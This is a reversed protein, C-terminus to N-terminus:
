FAAVAAAADPYVEFYADFGVKKLIQSVTQGPGALKLSSGAGPQDVMSHLASWGDEPNLPPEGRLMKAISHIALLGASSIFAVGSLDLVMATAGEDRLKKGAEILDRYNSGDVNGEPAIVAVPVRGQAQSINLKM